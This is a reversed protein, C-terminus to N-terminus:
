SLFTLVLKRSLCTGVGASPLAAGLSERVLLDKSHVEAFEDLYTGAVFDLPSVDLSLVPTQIFDSDELGHSYLYSIHPHLIDESDHMVFADFQIHNMEEFYLIQYIIQNLMQGKYTPGELENVVLHVREFELDMRKAIEYTATDNPYVGIFLHVNENPLNAMNGRVMAELVDEEKWNAVMIALNKQKSQKFLDVRKLSIPKLQKILAYFDIFLDDILFVTISFVLLIFCIDILSLV